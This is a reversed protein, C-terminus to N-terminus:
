VLVEVEITADLWNPSLSVVQAQRGVGGAYLDFRNHVIQVEQGLKLSLLNAKGIFKYITRPVKFFDRLRIAEANANATTLLMTDVQEPEEELRYNTRVTADADAAAVLWEKAFLDKHDQPIGTLLDSQVTWNKCYGVKAGAKVEIRESISLTHHLIDADTITVSADGTFTLARLLQLKGFRNMFVQAGVSGALAQCVSIVNERGSIYIGVPQTNTAAFTNFNPLDIETVANLKYGTKGYETVIVAILNAINNSYSAVAAGTSLNVSKKVGQVSATITGATQQNMKFKGTGLTITATFTIAGTLGTDVYIPVGNDRIEIIRETDANNAM